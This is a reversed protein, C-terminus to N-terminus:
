LNLNRRITEERSARRPDQRPDNGNEPRNHYIQLGERLGASIAGIMGAFRRQNANSRTDQSTQGRILREVDMFGTTNTTKLNDMRTSMQHIGDATAKKANAVGSKLDLIGSELTTEQRELKNEVQLLATKIETLDLPVAGDKPEVDVDREEIRKIAESCKQLESQVTGLVRSQKLSRKDAEEQAKKVSELLKHDQEQAAMLAGLMTRIEETAADSPNKGVPSFVVPAAPTLLLPDTAPPNIVVEVGENAPSSTKAKKPSPGVTAAEVESKRKTKSQKKALRDHTYVMGEERTLERAHEVLLDDKKGEQIIDRYVHGPHNKTVHSRAKDERPFAKGCEKCKFPAEGTLHRLVVHDELERRSGKRDCVLCGYLTGSQNYEFEVVEPPIASAM